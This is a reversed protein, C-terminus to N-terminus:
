FCGNMLRHFLGTFLALVRIFRTIGARKERLRKGRHTRELKVPSCLHSLSAVFCRCLSATRSLRFYNSAHHRLHVSVELSPLVKGLKGRVILRVCVFYSIIAGKIYVPRIVVAAATHTCVTSADDASEATM